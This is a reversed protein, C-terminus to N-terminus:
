YFFFPWWNKMPKGEDDRQRNGPGPMNQRWYVLWPGDCDPALNRYRAFAENTWPRAVDEGNPGSGIRWDEITSMVTNTNELDYHLRGNPPWHANGGAAVYNTLTWTRNQFKIVATQSDPYEVATMGYPLQYFTPFPLGFRKDLDYGAFEKFYRSFYPIAGSTAMGELGHSLSELYCGVGRSANVFGLRVSRGTWKQDPDGGNGAQVYGDGVRQFNEDYQPKLEVVEYGKVPPDGECFFFVEHVYGGDVLEDLRLFRSLNKPDPVGYRTALADEFFGSYRVNFDNTVGPRLPILASNANTSDDRLDVVKFVQYQLFALANSDRYGHYRSSEALAAILDATMQEVQEMKARNSFNLVLLRPRMMRIRDHNDILWRDSNARSTQNPWVTLEAPDNAPSSAIRQQWRPYDEELLRAPADTYWGYGVRREYEIEALSDKIIGDRGCFIPRNRGIEYFRAWLPDANSDPVIVKDYGKPLSRDPKEVQKIGTLKSAEFWKIASEIAERARADPKEIAMLFRVVGVSESGSLSVKEYTRASAPAFTKEDHQACWVTRKGDVVIQCKLICEIGKEVAHESRQRREVDVFSYVPERRAVARLLNLVNVMANDNFTIHAQYGKPGPYYQPWGGNAYQAALLFDLGRLFGDKFREQKSANFVRALFTVQSYTAGNDITGDTANMAARLKEKQEQSLSAAMDINKPWGGSDRQYSLLNDAVRLAEAGSHWEAPQRLCENWTLTRAESRDASFTPAGLFLLLTVLTAPGDVRLVGD